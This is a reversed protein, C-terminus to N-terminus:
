LLFNKDRLGENMKNKGNIFQIVKRNNSFQLLEKNIRCELRKDSM